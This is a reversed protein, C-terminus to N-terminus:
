GDVGSLGPERRPLRGSPSATKELRELRRDERSEQWGRGAEIDPHDMGTADDLQKELTRVTRSLTTTDRRYRVCGRLARRLRDFLAEYEADLAILASSSQLGAVQERLDENEQRLTDNRQQVRKAGAQWKEVDAALQRCQAAHARRVEDLHADGRRREAATARETAERLEARLERIEQNKWGLM